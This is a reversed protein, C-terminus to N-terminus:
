GFVFRSKLSALLKRLPPPISEACKYLLESRVRRPPSITTNFILQDAERDRVMCPPHQLPFSMETARLTSLKNSINPHTADQGFGINEVLNKAPLISVGRHAWCTFLWQFDWAKFSDRDRYTLDFIKEWHCVARPEDVVGLLWSTDRLTPWLQIEYDYYQFARSWTAWGWSLCYNSFLYSFPTEKQGFLWNNGSIHMVREDDRYKQLLEECFRFFTPHPVCDDELIIAEDVQEFVWRIGTPARRGCGMNTTAYHKQVDCEWDVRDVIARVAACKDADGEKDPRPGDAIIFLKTPRARAIEAFVRATTDPRNFIIFAVPTRM